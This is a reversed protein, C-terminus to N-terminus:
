LGEIKEKVDELMRCIFDIDRLLSTKYLKNRDIESLDKLHINELTTKKSEDPYLEEDDKIDIKKDPMNVPLDM